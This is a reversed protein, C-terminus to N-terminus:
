FFSNGHWIYFLSLTISYTFFCLFGFIFNYWLTQSTFYGMFNINFELFFRLLFDSCCVANAIFYLGSRTWGLGAVSMDQIGRNVVNFYLLIYWLFEDNDMYNTSNILFRGTPILSPIERIDLSWDKLYYDGRPYPCRRVVNSYNRISNRILNNMLSSSLGTQAACFDFRIDVGQPRYENNSSKYFSRLHVM